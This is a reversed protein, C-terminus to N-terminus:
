SGAGQDDYYQEKRIREEVVDAIFRTLSVLEDTKNKIVFCCLTVFFTMLLIALANFVLVSIVLIWILNADFQM